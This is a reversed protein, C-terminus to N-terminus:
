VLPRLDAATLGVGQRELAEQTARAAAADPVAPALAGAAILWLLNRAGGGLARIADGLRIPGDAMVRRLAAAFDPQFRIRGRPMVISDPIPEGAAAIMLDGLAAGGGDQGADGRVFVDRRFARNVALDLALTRLRPTALGAIARATADDVLLADHRDRLTASAIWRLGAQAMEDAVDVSWLAECAEALYEQALYGQPQAAWSKVALAAAPHTKFYGFGLARWREIERAGDGGGFEQLLRRLPLEGARGPLCNYSVYALGGPLLSDRLLACLVARTPASVWSYVGHLVVFDFRPLDKLGAADFGAAVFRVNRVGCSAAWGRAQAIAAADRDVAVFEGAPHAAAHLLASYGRGCGLELFRFPRALDRSAAGNLVAAYNLWSPSTERQYTIPYAAPTM